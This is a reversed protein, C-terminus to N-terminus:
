IGERSGNVDADRRSEREQNTNREEGEREREMRVNKERKNM